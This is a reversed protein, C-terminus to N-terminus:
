HWSYSLLKTDNDQGIQITTVPGEVEDDFFVREATGTTGDDNVTGKVVVVMGVGLDSESAPQGEIIIEANDTEYEVGNVFISGFGDLTGSTTAGSGSIGGVPGDDIGAIGGGGGGGGGGCASLGALIFAAPLAKKTFPIM